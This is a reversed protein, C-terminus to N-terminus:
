ESLEDGWTIKREKPNKMYEKVMDHIFKYQESTKVLGYRQEKLRRVISFISLRFEDPHVLQRKNM